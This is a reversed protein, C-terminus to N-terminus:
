RGSPGDCGLRLRATPPAFPELRMSPVAKSMAMDLWLRHGELRRRALDPEEAEAEVRARAEDMDVEAGRMLPTLAERDPRGCKCGFRRGRAFHQGVAARHLTTARRTDRREARGPYLHGLLHQRVCPATRGSTGYRSVRRHTNMATASPPMATVM